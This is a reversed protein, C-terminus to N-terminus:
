LSVTVLERIRELTAPGIGPVDVIADVAAFPGNAERFAVIEAALVPGIGPLTELEAATASNLDLPGTPASPAAPRLNNGPVPPAAAEGEAPVHLHMGDGLPLALNVAVPDAAATFGGAAEVLDLGISGPPLEYVGPAIIEGTVYLRLPAPTPPATPELTPQAELPPLMIADPPVRQRWAQILQASILGAALFIAGWALQRKDPRM